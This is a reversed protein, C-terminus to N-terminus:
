KIVIMRKTEEFDGANIKYFYTGSNLGDASFHVTHKGAPMKRNVLTKIQRGMLDYIQLRVFSATEISYDITTTPNFPNPYNQSLKYANPIEKNEDIATFTTGTVFAALDSYDSEGYENIASVHWYIVKGAGLIESQFLTDSVTTDVITSTFTSKTSVQLHYSTAEDSPYWTFLPNQAVDDLGVPYSLLPPQPPLPTSVYEILWELAPRPRRTYKLLYANRQWMDDEVYGWLTIGKVGPNEWFIPFYTQYNEMQLDDDEENIDFETIYVPLGTATLQNLNSEITPISYTYGSGKFEFYHGQIGIGDILEREQLLNIIELYTNTNSGSHLINFDNILLKASDPMYQRALEFATIVWDWGTEGDGGLAQKYNARDDTGDPPNHGLLPENVVDVFDMKPYREGVLQFWEEIEERQSASDLDSIWSPQQSGWVLTHHKYLIGKTRAMNYINDLQSWSYFNRSYEVSGWKGANGPTVQNWYTTYNSYITNGLCNGVFKDMGEAMQGFLPNLIGTVLLLGSLLVAFLNIRKMPNTRKRKMKNPRSLESM